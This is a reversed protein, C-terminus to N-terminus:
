PASRHFLQHMIKRQQRDKWESISFLVDQLIQGDHLEDQVLFTMKPMMTKTMMMMMMTMTMMMMM